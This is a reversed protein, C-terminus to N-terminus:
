FAVGVDASAVAVVAAVRHVEVSRGEAEVVFRDRVAPFTAELGFRLFAPEAVDIRARLAAGWALYARSRSFDLVPFGIGEAHLEGAQFLACADVPVPADVIAPCARFEGHVVRFDVRGADTPSQGFPFGRVAFEFSARVPPTWAIAAGFGVAAAPMLGASVLASGAMRFHPVSRSAARAGAADVPAEAPPLVLSAEREAAPEANRAQEATATRRGPPTAAGREPPAAVGEPRQEGASSPASAASAAREDHEAVAAAGPESSGTVLPEVAVTLVLVLADDLGRCDKGGLAVVRNSGPGGDRRSIEITARWGARGGGHPSVRGLARVDATGSTVLLPRGAHSEVARALEDGSICSQAGRAREWVLLARGEGEARGASSLALVFACPLGRTLASRRTTSM